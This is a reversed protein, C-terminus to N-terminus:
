RRGRRPPIQIELGDLKVYAVHRRWLGMIDANVTFAEIRFLPPVDGGGKRRVVLDEGKVEFRPLVRLTM